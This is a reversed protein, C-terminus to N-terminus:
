LVGRSNCLGHALLERCVQAARVLAIVALARHARWMALDMAPRQLCSPLGHDGHARIVLNPVIREVGNFLLQVPQFHRPPGSRSVIISPDEEASQRQLRVLKESESRRLDKSRCSYGTRLWRETWSVQPALKELAM